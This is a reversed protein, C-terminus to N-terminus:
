AFPRHPRLPCECTRLEALGVPYRAVALRFRVAPELLWDGDRSRVPRCLMALPLKGGMASMLPADAKSGFSGNANTRQGRGVQPNQM